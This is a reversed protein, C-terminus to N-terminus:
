TISYTKPSSVGYNQQYHQNQGNYCYSQQYNQSYKQGEPEYCVSEINKIQGGGIELKNTFRDNYNNTQEYYIMGNTNKNYKKM